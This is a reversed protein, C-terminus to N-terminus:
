APLPRCALQNSVLMSAIASDIWRGKAKLRPHAAFLTGTGVPKTLILVDGPKMGGKSMVTDPDIYGNAAFGLALEQGEGTHGGVLACGAENLVEVAGSMMQYVVDEVKSELGYPVTAIATASQAEAGMAFLDGLSHNAAVQGFVYPDDLFSRFFDVTHVMAMGEPVRVVAADDRPTCASWCM